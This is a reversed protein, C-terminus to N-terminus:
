WNIVLRKNGKPTTRLTGESLIAEIDEASFYDQIRGNWCIAFPQDTGHLDNPGVYVLTFPNGMSDSLPHKTEITQQKFNAM